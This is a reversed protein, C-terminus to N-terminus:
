RIKVSRIDRVNYYMTKGKLRLGNVRGALLAALTQNLTTFDTQMKSIYSDTKINSTTQSKVVDDLERKLSNINNVISNKTKTLTQNVATQMKNLFVSTKVDSVSQAKLANHIENRVHTSLSTMNNVLDNKTDELTEEMDTQMKSLFASTKISSDSQAKVVNDLENLVNAAVSTMNGAMVNKTEELERTTDTRIKSLLVSTKIESASLAELVNGLEHKVKLTASTMNQVVDHKTEEMAEQIDSNELLLERYRRTLDSLEQDLNIRSKAQFNIDDKMSTLKDEINKLEAANWSLQDSGTNCCVFAIGVILFVIYVFFAMDVYGSPVM